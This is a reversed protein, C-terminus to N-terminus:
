LGIMEGIEPELRKNYYGQEYAALMTLDKIRQFKMYDYYAILDPKADVQKTNFKQPNFFYKRAVPWFDSYALMGVQLENPMDNREIVRLLVWEENESFKYLQYFKNDIRIISIYLWGQKAEFVKLKSKGNVTNKSEFQPKGKKTASGTSLFLWNEVSKANKKVSDPRPSRVMLGALSYSRAPTNTNKGAVKIKTTVSFNGKIEKFLFPGRHFNGYWGSSQPIIVLQEKENIGISDIFSPWNESEHHTKWASLSEKTSFDDNLEALPDQALINSTTMVLLFKLFNKIM